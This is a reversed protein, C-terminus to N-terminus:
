NTKVRQKYVMVALLFAVISEIVIIWLAPQVQVNSVPFVAGKLSFLLSYTPIIKIYWPSFGEIYYSIMPLGFILNLIVITVFSQSLNDYFSAFILAVSTSLFSGVIIIILLEGYNANLGVILPTFTLAFLFGLIAFLLVKSGFYEWIKGPTVRYAIITGQSKEEFVMSFVLIMGMMIAESMLLIPLLSKNFPISEDDSMENEITRVNYFNESSTTIGMNNIVSLKLLERTEQSEHGQFVIEFSPNEATGKIVIGFSNFRRNMIEELEKRSDVFIINEGELEETLFNENVIDGNEAENLLFIEPNLSLNEPVLFTVLLYYGVILGFVLLFYYNRWGIKLEKKTNTLLRM